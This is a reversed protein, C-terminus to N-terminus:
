VLSVKEDEKNQLGSLRLLSSLIASPVPWANLQLTKPEGKLYPCGLLLKPYIIHTHGLIQYNGQLSIQSRKKGGEKTVPTIPLLTFLKM